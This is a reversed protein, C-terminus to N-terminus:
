CSRAALQFDLDTTGGNTVTVTRTLPLYGIRLVEIEVTGARVGTLTYKGDQETNAAANTGLALVRAGAIPESNGQATVHGSVTGQAWAAASALCLTGAMRMLSFPRAFRGIRM